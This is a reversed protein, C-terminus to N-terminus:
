RVMRGALIMLLYGEGWRLNMAIPLLHRLRILPVRAFYDNVGVPEHM